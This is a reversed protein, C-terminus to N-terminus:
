SASMGSRAPDFLALFAERPILVRRGIRVAPIENNRAAASATRPDVGLLDAAQVLTLTANTMARADQMTLIPRGGTADPM